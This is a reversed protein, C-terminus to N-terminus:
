RQDLGDEISEVTVVCRGRAVAASRDSHSSFAKRDDPTVGLNAMLDQPLKQYGDADGRANVPIAIHFRYPGSICPPHSVRVMWGAEMKWARAKPSLYRRGNGNSPYANNATPPLPLEVQFRVTM